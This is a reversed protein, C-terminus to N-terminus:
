ILGMQVAGLPNELEREKTYREDALWEKESGWYFRRNQPMKEVRLLALLFGMSELACNGTLVMLDAWSLKKGYKQKIVM